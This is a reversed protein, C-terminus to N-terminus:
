ALWSVQGQGEGGVKQRKFTAMSFVSRPFPEKCHTHPMIAVHLNAVDNPRSVNRGGLTTDWPVRHRLVECSVDFVVIILKLAM